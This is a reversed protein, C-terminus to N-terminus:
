FAEGLMGYSKSLRDSLTKRLNKSMFAADLAYMNVKLFEAAGWGFVAALQAYESSLTLAPVTRGDTNISLSVGARLLADVPHKQLSEFVNIIVNCTPCVELHVGSAALEEVLQPEEISRVGHGIRSPRLQQLTQRVSAAGLAEGAHATRQLGWREALKFAEVHPEIPFGAEDAALDLGVVYRNRFQQVLSVTEIGMECSFHRLTCLILRGEVGTEAIAAEVAEDVCAVVEEASLGQEVHLLPAFRIEAYIVGDAKLQRFLDLTIARLRDRSQMLALIRPVRTLFDSLDTCKDRLQYQERYCLEDIDPDIGALVELSPSCDLHLHLEVKAFTQFTM